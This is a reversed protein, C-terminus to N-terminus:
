MKKKAAPKKAAAAKKPKGKKAAKPPKCAGDTIGKAGDKAAYCANAYTFKQTGKM